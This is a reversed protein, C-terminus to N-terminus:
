ILASLLSSIQHTKFILKEEIHHPRKRKFFPVLSGSPYELFSPLSIRPPNSISKSM